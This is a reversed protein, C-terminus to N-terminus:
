QEGKSATLTEIPPAPNVKKTLMANVGVAAGEVEVAAEVADKRRVKTRRKMLANAVTRSKLGPWSRSLM